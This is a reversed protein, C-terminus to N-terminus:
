SIDEGVATLNEGWYSIDIDGNYGIFVNNYEYDTLIYKEADESYTLGYREDSMSPRNKDIGSIEIDDASKGSASIGIVRADGIGKGPTILFEIYFIGDDTDIKGACKFLDYESYYDATHDMDEIYAGTDKLTYLLANVTCPLKVKNGYVTLNELALQLRDNNEPVPVYEMSSNVEDAEPSYDEPLCYEDKTLTVYQIGNNMDIDYYQFAGVKDDFMRLIYEHKMDAAEANYNPCYYDEAGYGYVRDVAAADTDYADLGGIIVQPQFKNKYVGIFLLMEIVINDPAYENKDSYYNGFAWCIDNYYLYFSFIYREIGKEEAAEDKKSGNFRLSFEEPLENYRLPFDYREGNIFIHDFDECTFERKEQPLPPVAMKEEAVEAISINGSNLSASFKAGALKAAGGGTRMIIVLASFFAAAIIVTLIRFELKKM